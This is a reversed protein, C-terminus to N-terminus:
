IVNNGESGGKAIRSLITDQIRAVIPWESFLIKVYNEFDSFSTRAATLGAMIPRESFLFIICNEDNSFSTLGPTTIFMTIKEIQLSKM